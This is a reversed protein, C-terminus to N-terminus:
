LGEDCIDGTFGPECACAGSVCRGNGSCTPDLCEDDTLQCEVGQWGAYCRCEGRVYVGNGSCLVPCVAVVLCLVVRDLDSYSATNVDRARVHM